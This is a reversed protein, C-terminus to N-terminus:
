HTHRVLNIMEMSLIKYIVPLHIDSATIYFFHTPLKVQAYKYKIPSERMVSVRVGESVRECVHVCM